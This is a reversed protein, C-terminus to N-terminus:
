TYPTTPPCPCAVPLVNPALDPHALKLHMAVVKGCKRQHLLSLHVPPCTSLHFPPCTSLHVLAGVQRPDINTGVSLLVIIFPPKDLSSRILDEWLEPDALAEAM